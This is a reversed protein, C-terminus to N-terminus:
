LDGDQRRDYTVADFAAKYGSVFAIPRNAQYHYLDERLRDILRELYAKEIQKTLRALAENDM